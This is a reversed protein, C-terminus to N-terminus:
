LDGNRINFAHQQGSSLYVVGGQFLSSKIKEQWTLLRSEDPEEFLNVELNRQFSYTLIGHNWISSELSTEDFLCSGFLDFPLLRNSYKDLVEFLFNSVFAGSYCSDLLLDTRCLKGTQPLNAILTKLFYKASLFEGSIYLDGDGEIGHGAYILLVEGGCWDSKNSLSKLYQGTVVIADNLERLTPNVLRIHKERKGSSYTKRNFNDKSWKYLWDADNTTYLLDAEERKRLVNLKSSKIKGNEPGSCSISITVKYNRKEGFDLGYLEHPIRISNKSLREIVEYKEGEIQRAYNM